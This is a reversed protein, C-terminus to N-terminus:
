EVRHLQYPHKQLKEQIKDARLSSWEGLGARSMRWSGRIRLGKGICGYQYLRWTLSSELWLLSFIILVRWFEIVVDGHVQLKRWSNLALAGRNSLTLFYDHVSVYKTLRDSIRRRSPFQIRDIHMLKCILTKEEKVHYRFNIHILKFLVEILKEFDHPIKM